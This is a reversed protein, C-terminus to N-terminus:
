RTFIRPFYIPNRSPKLAPLLGKKLPTTVKITLKPNLNFSSFSVDVTNCSVLFKLYTTMLAYKDSHNRQTPIADIPLIGFPIDTPCASPQIRVSGRLKIDM